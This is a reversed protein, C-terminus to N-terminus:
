GARSAEQPRGSGRPRATDNGEEDSDDADFRVGIRQDPRRQQEHVLAQLHENDARTPPRTPLARPWLGRARVPNLEAAYLTLKSLLLLFTVLGLAAAFAGYTASSNRLQHQVLGAGVTILVTFSVAGFLSGPLLQRWTVDTPTLLKFAIIYFGCNVALMFALILIRAYWSIGHGTAIPALMANVVFAGGIAALGGLSRGLRPLFGPMRTQPVNWVRAMAQEATQTVGQAGYLLGAVGIVLGVVSGHLQSGGQGPNFQSGIVPFQHLTHVVSTGLSAARIYGFVTVVVLLLPYIATFGYWGLAVVLLNADDDGFKKIVGYTVAPTPHRQQWKDVDGILRQITQKSHGISRNTGTTDDSCDTSANVTSVAIYRDHQPRAVNSAAHRVM